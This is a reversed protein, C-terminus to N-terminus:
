YVCRLLSLEHSTSVAMNKKKKKKHLCLKTYRKDKTKSVKFRKKRSVEYKQTQQSKKRM